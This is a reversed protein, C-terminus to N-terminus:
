HSKKTKPFLSCKRVEHYTPQVFTTQRSFFLQGTFDRRSLFPVVKKAWAFNDRGVERGLLVSEWCNSFILFMSYIKPPFILVLYPVASTLIEFFILFLVLISKSTNRIFWVSHISFILSCNQHFGSKEAM